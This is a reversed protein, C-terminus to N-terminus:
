EDRTRSPEPYTIEVKDSQCNPCKLNDFVLERSDVQLPMDELSGEFRIKATCVWKETCIDCVCKIVIYGYSTM